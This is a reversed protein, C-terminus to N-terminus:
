DSTPVRPRRTSRPQKCSSSGGSRARSRLPTANGGPCAPPDLSATPEDALVISPRAALARAIAVRQQQGVSLREIPTDIRELGLQALLHQARSRHEVRPLDSFLMAVELNELATFGVLLHHTQFVMGIRRGRIGDRAAEGADTISEGAIRISGAQPDLLGAILNLLTSKGCGSPGCLLAQEGPAIALEGLRMSYGDPYTFQLDKIEIAAPM